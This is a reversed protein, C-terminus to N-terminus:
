RTAAARAIELLQVQLEKQDDAVIVPIEGDPYSRQAKAAADVAPTPEKEEPPADGAGAVQL